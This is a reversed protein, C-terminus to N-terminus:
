FPSQQKMEFNSLNVPVSNQQIHGTDFLHGFAFAPQRGTNPEHKEKHKGPKLRNINNM